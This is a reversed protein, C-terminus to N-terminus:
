APTAPLTPRAWCPAAAAAARVVTREATRGATCPASSTAAPVTRQTAPAPMCCPVADKCFSPRGTAACTPFCNRHRGCQAGACPRRKRPAARPLDGVRPVSLSHGLYRPSNGFLTQMRKGTCRWTATARWPCSTREPPTRQVHISCLHAQWFVTKLPLADQCALAASGPPMRGAGWREVQAPGPPM